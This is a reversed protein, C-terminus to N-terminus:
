SGKQLTQVFHVIKWREEPNVQAAHPWMRGKGHTITFFIRGASLGKVADSTYTPVGNYIDAVKGDAGGTAGHCHSCYRKYLVEGEALTEPTLPIPNALADSKDADNKTLNYLMLDKVETSDGTAFTTHYNRRSITGEVPLRMNMGHPNVPNKDIQTQAEYGVSNYMNPAFEWGTRQTRDCSTLGAAFATCLLLGALRNNMKM